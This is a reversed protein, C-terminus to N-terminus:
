WPYPLSTTITTPLPILSSHFLWLYFGHEDSNMSRSPKMDQEPSLKASQFLTKLYMCTFLYSSSFCYCFPLFAPSFFVSILFGVGFWLSLLWISRILLSSAKAKMVVKEVLGTMKVCLLQWVIDYRLVLLAFVQFLGFTGYECSKKATMERVYGYLAVRPTITLM